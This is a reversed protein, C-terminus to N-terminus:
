PYGQSMPGRNRYGRFVKWSIPPSRLVPPLAVPDKWALQLWHARSLQLLSSFSFAPEPQDICYKPPSPAHAANLAQM